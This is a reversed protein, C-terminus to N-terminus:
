SKWMNPYESKRFIEVQLRNVAVEVALRHLVEEVTHGYRSLDRISFFMEPSLTLQNIVEDSIPDLREGLAQLKKQMGRVEESNELFFKVQHGPGYSQSLIKRTEGNPLVVAKIGAEYLAKLQDHNISM